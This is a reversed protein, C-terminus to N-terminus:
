EFLSADISMAMLEPMGVGGPEELRADLQVRDADHQGVRRHFDGLLMVGCPCFLAPLLNFRCYSLSPNGFRGPRLSLSGACM